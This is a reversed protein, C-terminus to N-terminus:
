NKNDANIIKIIFQKLEDKDINVDIREAKESINLKVSVKEGSLNTTEPPAAPEPEPETAAPEPEPETPPTAAPEPEPETPAEKDEETPM